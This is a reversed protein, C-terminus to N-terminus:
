LFISVVIIKLNYAILKDIDKINHLQSNIFRSNMHESIEYYKM